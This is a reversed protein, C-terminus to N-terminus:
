SFHTANPIFANGFLNEKMLPLSNLDLLELNTDFTHKLRLIVLWIRQIQISFVM